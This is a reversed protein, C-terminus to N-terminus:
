YLSRELRMDVAVQAVLVCVRCGFFVLVTSIYMALLLSFWLDLEAAWEAVDGKGHEPQLSFRSSNKFGAQCNQITLCNCFIHLSACLVSNSPFVSCCVIMYLM